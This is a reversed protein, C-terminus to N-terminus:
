KPEEQIQTQARAAKSAKSKQHAAKDAAIQLKREWCGDCTGTQKLNNLESLLNKCRAEWTESKRNAQRTQERQSNLQAMVATLQEQKAALAAVLGKRVDIEATDQTPSKMTEGKILRRKHEGM